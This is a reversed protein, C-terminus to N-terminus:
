LITVMQAHPVDGVIAVKDEDVVGARTACSVAREGLVNVITAGELADVVEEEDAKEDGYFGETVEFPAGDADIRTGVLDSDCVAVLIESQRRHVKLRM